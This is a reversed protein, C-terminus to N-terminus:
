VESDKGNEAEVCCMITNCDQCMYEKGKEVIHLWSGTSTIPLPCKCVALSFNKPGKGNNYKNIDEVTIFKPKSLIINDSM